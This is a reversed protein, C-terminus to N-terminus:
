AATPDPLSSAPLDRPPLAPNASSDAIPLQMALIDGDSMDRFRSTEFDACLAESKGPGAAYGAAEGASHLILGIVAMTMATIRDWVSGGTGLIAPAERRLRVVPVLPSTLTRFLRQQATLHEERVRYAGYLRGGQFSNHWWPAPKSINCHHVVAAPEFELTLGRARLRSHFFAEVVLTEGLDDLMSMLISRKYSTNHPPLFDMQGGPGSNAWRGWHLAFLARSLATRTNANRMQPAVAACDSAHGAILLEAWAPEPFCHDEAFAVISATTNRVGEIKAAAYSASPAEVILSRGFGQLIETGAGFVEASEVVVVLEIANARTQARLARLLPELWSHHRPMFVVVSLELQAIVSDSM